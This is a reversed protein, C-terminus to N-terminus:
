ATMYPPDVYGRPIFPVKDFVRFLLYIFPFPRIHWRKLSSFRIHWLALIGDSKEKFSRIHWRKPYPAQRSAGWWVIEGDEKAVGGCLKEM